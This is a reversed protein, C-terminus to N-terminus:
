TQIYFKRVYQLNLQIESQPSKEFCVIKSWNNLNISLRIFAPYSFLSILIQCLNSLIYFTIKLHNM